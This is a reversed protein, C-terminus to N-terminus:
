NLNSALVFFNKIRNLIKVMSALIELQIDFFVNRTFFEAVENELKLGTKFDPKTYRSDHDNKRQICRQGELANDFHTSFEILHLDSNSLLGYFYNEAEYIENFWNNKNLHFEDMLNKWTSEFDEKLITENWILDSLKKLVDTKAMHSGLAPVAQLIATDQDTVIVKPEKLFTKKLCTTAM